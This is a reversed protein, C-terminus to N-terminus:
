DEDAAQENDEFRSPGGHVSEFQQPPPVQGRRGVRGLFRALRRGFRLRVRPPRHLRLRAAMPLLARTLAFHPSGAQALAWFLPHTPGRLM